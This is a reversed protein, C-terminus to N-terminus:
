RLTLGHPAPTVLPTNTAIAAAQSAAWTIDTNSTTAPNYVVADVFQPNAKGAPSLIQAVQGGMVEGCHEQSVGYGGLASPAGPTTASYVRDTVPWFIPM